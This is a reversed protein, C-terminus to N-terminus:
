SLSGKNIRLCREVLYVIGEVISLLVAGGWGFILLPLFGIGGSYITNSMKYWALCGSAICIAIIINIVTYFM